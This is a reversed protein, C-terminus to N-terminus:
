GYFLSFVVASIVGITIGMLIEPITHGVLESELGTGGLRVGFRDGLRHNIDNIARAHSEVQGRLRYADYVVISALVGAVAFVDSGFGSRLGISVALATVFASHASPAGGASVFYSLQLERERISHYVVKYVQCAVQTLIAIVLSPAIDIM